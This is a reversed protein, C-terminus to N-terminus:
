DLIELYVRGRHRGASAAVVTRMARAIRGNKGIVKGVDGEAVKLELVAGREDESESVSVADADDVLSKAIYEVLEKEM